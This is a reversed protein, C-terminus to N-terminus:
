CMSFFMGIFVEGIFFVISQIIIITRFKLKAMLYLRIYGSLFLVIFYLFSVCIFSILKSMLEQEKLERICFINM